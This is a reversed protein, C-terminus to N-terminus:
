SGESDRDPDSNQPLESDDLNSEEPTLPVKYTGDAWAGLDITRCRQSCFPRFPNTPAYETPKKCVPCKVIRSVARELSRPWAM